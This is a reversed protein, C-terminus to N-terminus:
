AASPLVRDDVPNMRFSGPNFTEFTKGCREEGPRNKGPTEGSVGKEPMRLTGQDTRRHIRYGQLECRYVPALYDEPLGAKWLLMRGSKTRNLKEMKATLDEAKAEGDLIRHITGFILEERQSVKKEIDPYERRIKERRAAEERENRARQTEYDAMLENLLDERM